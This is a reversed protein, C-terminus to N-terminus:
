VAAVDEIMFEAHKNIPLNTVTISSLYTAKCTVRRLNSQRTGTLSYAIDAGSLAITVTSALIAIAVDTRTNVATGNGDTLSWIATAPVVPDGDEDIFKFTIYKTSRDQAPDLM